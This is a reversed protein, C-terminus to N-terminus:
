REYQNRLNLKRKLLKIERDMRNISNQQAKYGKYAEFANLGTSVLSIIALVAALAAKGGEGNALAQREIMFMTIMAVASITLAATHFLLGIGTDAIEKVEVIKDHKAGTKADVAAAGGLFIGGSSM